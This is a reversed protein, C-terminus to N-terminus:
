GRAARRLTRGSGEGPYVRGNAGPYAYGNILVRRPVASENPTSGHIAYPGFFLVSGAAGTVTMAQSEDFPLPSGSSMPTGYDFSSASLRADPEGNIASRPIFKLPGNDSTMDDILMITQVYSGRGNLDRWTGPGKDRHQVDQHWDFSV